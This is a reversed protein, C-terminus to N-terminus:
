GDDLKPLMVVGTPRAGDDGVAGSLRFKTMLILCETRTLRTLDLHDIGEDAAMAKIRHERMVRQLEVLHELDTRIEPLLVERVMASVAHSRVAETDRLFKGVAVHSIKIGQTGLWEAIARTSAGSTAKAHVMPEMDPTIKRHRRRQPKEM